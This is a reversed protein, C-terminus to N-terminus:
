FVNQEGLVQSPDHERGFHTRWARRYSAASARLIAQEDANAASSLCRQLLTETSPPDEAHPTPLDVQRWHALQLVYNPGGAKAGPGFVSGKWGGFPQRRVIAGTIHRNIYLNGVAIQAKYREIERDDLSHLGGTLGFQTDNAFDIAQQLNESRMLGLVPGF